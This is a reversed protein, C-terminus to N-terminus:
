IKSLGNSCNRFKSKNNMSHITASNLGALLKRMVTIKEPTKIEGVLQLALAANDLKHIGFNNSMTKKANIKSPLKPRCTADITAVPSEDKQCCLNLLNAVLQRGDEEIQHEPPKLKDKKQQV